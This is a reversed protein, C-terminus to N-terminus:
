QTYTVSYVPFYNFSLWKVLTNSFYERIINYALNSKFHLFYTLTTIGTLRYRSCCYESQYVTRQICYFFPQISYIKINCVRHCKWVHCTEVLTEIFDLKYRICFVFIITEIHKQVKLFGIFFKEFFCWLLELCQKLGCTKLYKGILKDIESKKYFVLLNKKSVKYTTIWRQVISSKSM